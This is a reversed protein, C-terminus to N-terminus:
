KVEFIRSYHEFSSVQQLHHWIMTKHQAYTATNVQAGECSDLAYKRLSSPHICQQLLKFDWIVTAELEAV